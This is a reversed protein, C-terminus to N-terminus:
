HNQGVVMVVQWGIINGQQALVASPCIGLEAIIYVAGPINPSDQEQSHLFIQQPKPFAFQGYIATKKQATQWVVLLSSKPQIHFSVCRDFSQSGSQNTPVGDILSLWFQSGAAMVEYPVINLLTNEARAIM